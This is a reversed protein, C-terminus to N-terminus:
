FKLPCECGNYWNIGFITFQKDNISDIIGKLSEIKEKDPNYGNHKTEKTTLVTNGIKTYINMSMNKNIHGM